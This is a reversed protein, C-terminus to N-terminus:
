FDCAYTYEIYYDTRSYPPKPYFKLLTQDANCHDSIFRTSELKTSAYYILLQRLQIHSFGSDTYTQLTTAIDENTKNADVVNQYLYNEYYDSAISSITTKTKNEPTFFLAFIIVSAVIITALLIIILIIKRAVISNSIPQTQPFIKQVSM